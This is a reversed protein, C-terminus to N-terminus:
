ILHHFSFLHPLSSMSISQVAALLDPRAITISTHWWVLHFHSQPSKKRPKGKTEPAAMIRERTLCLTRPNSHTQRHHFICLRLSADFLPEAAM